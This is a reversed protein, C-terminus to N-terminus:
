DKRPEAEVSAAADLLDQLVDVAIRLRESSRPELAAVGALVPALAAGRAARAHALLDEGTPTLSVLCARADHQDTIRRVCGTVELRQVQATMTPQSCHDAVALASIRSPGLEEMLSLLRLQAPAVQLTAHRNAWRSLRAASRLLENGLTATDTM